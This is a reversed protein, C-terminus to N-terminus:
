EAETLYTAIETNDLMSYDLVEDLYLDDDAETIYDTQSNGQMFMLGTTAVIGAMAAAVAWGHWMRRRCPKKRPLREMIEQPLNDFYNDPTRFPNEKGLREQLIKEEDSTM